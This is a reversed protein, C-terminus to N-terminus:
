IAKPSATRRQRAQHSGKIETPRHDLIGSSFELRPSNSQRQRTSLSWSLPQSAAFRVEGQTHHPREMLAQSTDWEGGKRMSGVQDTLVEQM